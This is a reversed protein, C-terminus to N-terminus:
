KEQGMSELITRILDKKRAFRIEQRSMGINDIERARRRLEVVTMQELQQKVSGAKGKVPGVVEKEKTRSSVPVPPDAQPHRGESLMRAVDATPRPIVHISVVTGIQGAAAASADMAAKVAGVEGTVLVTVLGGKVRIVEALSVNAAKLASDLATVATLCGYVEIMGLAKV